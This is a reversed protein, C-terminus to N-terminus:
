RIQGLSKQLDVRAAIVEYLASFYNTQAEKLASEANMIELSSGVGEKYKIRAKNYIDEALKMNQEQNTLTLVNNRLSIRANENELELARELENLDNEAKQLTLAAQRAKQKRQFGTFLPFNLNAGMMASKQWDDGRYFLRDSNYLTYGYNGYLSLTPMWGLRYRKLDYSYLERQTELLQYELRHVADFDANLINEDIQKETLSDTLVLTEELPMGIQFKLSLYALRIAQDMKIEQTKLNNLTVTIRDVDIQEAFGNNYIEQTEFQMLKMRSINQEILAKQKEAVLVNYYSKTVAVKIDQVTLAVNKASLEELSKRAQLAVMVSPDFVLQSAELTGTTTWKPQFAMLMQNPMADVVAQNLAQDQVLGPQGTAPNGAIVDKIFNPVVFAAVLPAYNLSGKAALQPLALGTVEKNRAHAIQQELLANKIKGQNREAYALCEALNMEAASSQGRAPLFGTCILFFIWATILGNKM